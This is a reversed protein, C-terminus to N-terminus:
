KQYSNLKGQIANLNEQEEKLRKTQADYYPAALDTLIRILSLKAAEDLDSINITTGDLQLGAYNYSFKQATITGVGKVVAISRPGKTYEADEVVEVPSLNLSAFAIALARIQEYITIDVLNPPLNPKKFPVDSTDKGQTSPQSKASFFYAICFVLLLITIIGFYM